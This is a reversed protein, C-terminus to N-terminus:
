RRYIKYQGRRRPNRRRYRATVLLHIIIAVAIVLVGILIWFLLGDGGSRHLYLEGSTLQYGIGNRNFTWIVNDPVDGIINGKEDMELPFAVLSRGKKSAQLAKGQSVIVYSADPEAHDVQVFSRTGDGATVCKYLKISYDAAPIRASRFVEGDAFLYYPTYGDQMTFLANQYYVWVTYEENGGNKSVALNCVDRRGTKEDNIINSNQSPGSYGDPAMSTKAILNGEFLLEESSAATKKYYLAVTGLKQGVSVPATIADEDLIPDHWVFSQATLESFDDALGRLELSSIDVEATIVGNNPDSSPYGKTQINFENTIGYLVRLEDATFHVYQGFGYDFLKIANRFRYYPSTVYNNPDGMLVTILTIGDKEAAEVLCYGAFNTEGTKGGVAYPYINSETDVDPKTYLLKNSTQITKSFKGQKENVTYEKTAIIERFTDNQLAHRMLLAMDYATTYHDENHLGHPNTYHTGTMGIEEAKKNMLEVFEEISGSSTESRTAAIALCAGCDNGSCLMLGYLMDLITVQYGYKLGLLSSQRGFGNQAEWGCTYVTNVDVGSELAVICTMIKTTSAPYAKVYAQKEYLVTCSDAEMLIINPTTIADIEAKDAHAASPIVAMILIILSILIYGTRKM